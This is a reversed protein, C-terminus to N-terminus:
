CICHHHKEYIYYPAYEGTKVINIFIEDCMVLAPKLNGMLLSIRLTVCDCSRQWTWVPTSPTLSTRHVFGEATTPGCDVWGSAAWLRATPVRSSVKRTSHLREDRSSEDAPDEPDGPYTQESQARQRGRDGDESTLRHTQLQESPSCASTRGPLSARRFVTSSSTLPITMKVHSIVCSWKPSFTSKGNPLNLM